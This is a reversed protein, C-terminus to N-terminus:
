VMADERRSSRYQMLDHPYPKDDPLEYVAIETLPESHQHSWLRAKLIRMALAVIGRMTYGYRGTATAEVGTPLHTVRAISDYKEIM